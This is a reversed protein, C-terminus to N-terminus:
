PNFTRNRRPRIDLHVSSNTRDPAERWLECEVLKMPNQDIWQDLGNGPDRVDVAECTLHTSRAAGGAQTNYHGPRYGSSVLPQTLNAPYQSLLKNVRFWVRAMNVADAETLPYEWHRNMLLEDYSVYNHPKTVQKDTM